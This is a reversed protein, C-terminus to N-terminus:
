KYGLQGYLYHSRLYLFSKKLSKRDLRSAKLNFTKKHKNYLEQYNNSPRFYLIWGIVIYSIILLININKIKKSFNLKNIILCHCKLM